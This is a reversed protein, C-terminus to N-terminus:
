LRPLAPRGGEQMIRAALRQFSLVHARYTARRGATSAGALLAREMQFTAQEPVLLILAPGHPHTLATRLAELCTHTKGTGARGLLFQVRVLGTAGETLLHYPQE